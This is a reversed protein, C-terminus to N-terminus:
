RGIEPQEAPKSVTFAQVIAAGLLGYQGRLTQRFALLPTESDDDPFVVAGQGKPIMTWWSSNHKKAMLAPERQDQVYVGGLVGARVAAWVHLAEWREKEGRKMYQFLAYQADVDIRPDIFDCQTYEAEPPNTIAVRLPPGAPRDFTKMIAM